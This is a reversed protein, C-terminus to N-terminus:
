YRKKGYNLVEDKLATKRPYKSLLDNEIKEAKEGVAKKAHDLIEAIRKYASRKHATEAIEFVLTRFVLYVRDKYISPIYPYALTMSSPYYETYGMLDAHREYKDAIKIFLSDSVRRKKLETLIKTVENELSAKDHLTEYTDFAKTDGKLVLSFLIPKAKDERKGEMLARVLWWEYPDKRWLIGKKEILTRAFSAAEDYEHDDMARQYALELFATHELHDHLYKKSVRPDYLSNLHEYMALQITEELREHGSGERELKELMTYFDDKYTECHLRAIVRLYEGNTLNLIREKNEEYFMIMIEYVKSTSDPTENVLDTFAEFVHLAEDMVFGAYESEEEERDMAAKLVTNLLKAGLEHSIDESLVEDFIKDIERHSEGWQDEYEDDDFYHADVWDIAENVVSYAISVKVDGSAYRYMLTTFLDHDKYAQTLLHNELTKKDLSRVITELRDPDNTKDKNPTEILPHDRILLMLSVRHKCVPGFDYPCDCHHDKINRADDLTVSVTYDVTGHATMYYTNGEKSYDSYLGNDYIEMGRMVIIERILYTFNELNMSSVEYISVRYKNRVDSVCKKVQNDVSTKMKDNIISLHMRENTILCPRGISVVKDRNNIYCMHTVIYM